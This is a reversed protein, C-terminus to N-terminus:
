TPTDQIKHALRNSTEIVSRPIVVRADASEDTFVRQPERRPNVEIGIHVIIRHIPIIRTSKIREAGDDLNAPPKATRLRPRM